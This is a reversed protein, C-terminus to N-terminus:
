ADQQNDDDGLLKLFDEYCSIPHFGSDLKVRLRCNVDAFAYCNRMERKAILLNIDDLVKKRNRTLDLYVRLRRVEKRKKYVTTRHKFSTFRVIVQRRREGAVIRGKGVRHARDIADDPISIGAERIAVKVAMMVDEETEDRENKLVQIGELRLCMRRSYQESEEVQDLLYTVQSELLCVKSELHDITSKQKQIIEKLALVDAKSALESFRREFYQMSLTTEEEDRVPTRASPKKGQKAM